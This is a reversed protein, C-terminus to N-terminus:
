VHQEGARSPDLATRPESTTPPAPLQDIRRAIQVREEQNRSHRQAEHLAHRAEDFRGLEALLTGRVLHVYPYDDFGVPGEHDLLALGRDAGDVRSVAFARNVRVAATPRCRELREYLDAILVWDTAEASTAMYHAGSIAAELQFPGPRGAVVAQALYRTADAGMERDWRSRDQDPLTIAVGDVGLRAPRRAEHFQLLALLGLVEPDSPYLELVSHALGTALRCLEGRVPPASDTSWYGENYLLAIALLVADLRDASAEPARGDADGEQRLRRRARALRQEMTRPAVVFAAALETTSLGIITALALAASEGPVLCPHCCAFLLRLLEDKWGRLVEPDSVASQVWPSMAALQELPEGVPVERRSRRARDIHARRAVTLLWAEPSDPIGAGPWVQLARLVADQVADEAEPLSGSFRVLKGLVRPYVQRLAEAIDRSMPAM